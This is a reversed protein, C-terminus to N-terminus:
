TINRYSIERLKAYVELPTHVISVGRISKLLQINRLDVERPSVKVKAWCSIAGYPCAAMCLECGVCLNLDIVATKGSIRIASAPCIQLCKMCGTCMEENVMCPLETESPRVETPM